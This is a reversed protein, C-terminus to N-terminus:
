RRLFENVITNFERDKENFCFHGANKIVYLHSNVIYKNFKKAMYLPTEKDNEGFVLLTQNKINKVESDLHENVVKYYSSRMNGSLMKLESSGFKLRAKKTLFPKIAKYGYVKFYYKLSRKPKLGASGTLVLKDIKEGLSILKVGIRGGFSHAILDYKDVGLERLVKIIDKAYDKISYAFPLSKSKGFGTIDVAIVRRFSSFYETQYYFSEKNSLYGHM